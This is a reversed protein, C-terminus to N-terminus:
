NSPEHKGKMWKAREEQKGQEMGFYFGAIFLTSGGIFLGFCIIYSM